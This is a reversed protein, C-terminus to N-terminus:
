AWRAARSFDLRDGMIAYRPHTDKQRKAADFAERLAVYVNANQAHRVPGHMPGGHLQVLVRYTVHRQSGRSVAEIVVHCAKLQPLLVQLKEAKKWVLDVLTSSPALGRFTVQPLM